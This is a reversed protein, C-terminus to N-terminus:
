LATCISDASCENARTNIGSHESRLTVGARTVKGQGALVPCHFAAATTHHPIAAAIVSTDFEAYSVLLTSYAISQKTSPARAQAAIARFVIGCGDQM